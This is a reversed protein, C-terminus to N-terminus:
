KLKEEMENEIEEVSPLLENRMVDIKRKRDCRFKAVATAFNYINIFIFNILRM